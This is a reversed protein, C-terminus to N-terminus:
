QTEGEYQTCVYQTSQILTTTKGNFVPIMTTSVYGDVCEPGPDCGVLAAVGLAVAAVAAAPKRM